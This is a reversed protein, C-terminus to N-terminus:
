YLLLRRSIYKANIKKINAWVEKMQTRSIMESVFQEWSAWKAM